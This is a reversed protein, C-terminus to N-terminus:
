LLSYGLFPVAYCRKPPFVDRQHFYGVHELECGHGAELASRNPEVAGAKSGAAEVIVEIVWDVEAIQPLHDELNGPTIREAFADDYLPAPKTKKLRGIAQAALRNRVAPHELTLGKAKEESTLSGPVIDLLLCPIGVNALHAAIGSGMVGSGIVTAKRIERM